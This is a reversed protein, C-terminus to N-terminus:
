IMSFLFYKRDNQPDVCVGYSDVNLKIPLVSIGIPLMATNVDFSVKKETEKRELSITNTAWIIADSTVGGYNVGYQTNFDDVLSADTSFDLPISLRNDFNVSCTFTFSLEDEGRLYVTDVRTEILALPQMIKFAVIVAGYRDEVTQGNVYIRYPLAYEIKEYSGLEVIKSPSCMVKFKAYKMEDTVEFVTQEAHYCSEPLLKLTTGHEQNYNDLVSEDVVYEVKSIGKDAWSKTAWLYVAQDEGFNYITEEVYNRVELTVDSPEVSDNSCSLLIWLSWLIYCLRKM